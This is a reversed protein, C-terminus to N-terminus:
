QVVETSSEKARKIPFVKEGTLSALKKKTEFLEYVLSMERALAADLQSQLDAVQRNLRDLREVDRNRSESQKAAAEDIDAILQAFGPRSKKISGKGRGAELSVSDNTIKTGKLVRVPKDAKLRDLADYYEQMSM